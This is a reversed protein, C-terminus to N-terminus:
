GKHASIFHAVVIVGAILLSAVAAAVVFYNSFNTLLVYGVFGQQVAFALWAVSKLAGGKSSKNSTKKNDTSMKDGKRSKHNIVSRLRAFTKRNTLVKKPKGRFTSVRPPIPPIYDPDNTPLLFPEANKAAIRRNPRPLNLEEGRLAKNILEDDTEPIDM